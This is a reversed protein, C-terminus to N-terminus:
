CRRRVPTRGWAAAAGVCAILLSSPEAIPTATLRVNDIGVQYLGPRGPPDNFGYTSFRITLPQGLAANTAGTTYILSAPLWEGNGPTVGTDNVALKTAGAFLEAKWNPMTTDFRDGVFFDLRYKTNPQLAAAVSQEIGALPSRIFASNRGDPLSGITNV